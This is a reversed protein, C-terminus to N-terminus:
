PLVEGPHVAKVKEFRQFDVKNLTLIQDVGHVEMVAALRADHVKVGCVQHVIVIRKWAAYVAENDPLLTMTREIAEVMRAAEETGLGFGNRNAPRTCVNWLEVINQLSFCLESGRNELEGIAAKALPYRADVKRALRLLVNTDILYSAM